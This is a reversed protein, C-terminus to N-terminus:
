YVYFIAWHSPALKAFLLSSSEDSVLTVSIYLYLSTCYATATKATHGFIVLNFVIYFIQAICCGFICDPWGVTCGVGDDCPVPFSVIYKIMEARQNIPKKNM